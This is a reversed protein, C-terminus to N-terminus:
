DGWRLSSDAASTKGPQTESRSERWQDLYEQILTEIEQHPMSLVNTNIHVPSHYFFKDALRMLRYGFWGKRIYREPTKVVIAIFKSNNVSFSRVKSVDRWLVRGKYGSGTNIELGCRDVVLGPETSLLKRVCKWLFWLLLCEVTLAAMVLAANFNFDHPIATVGIYIAGVGLIILGLVAPWPSCLIEVRQPYSYDVRRDTM